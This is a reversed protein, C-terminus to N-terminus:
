WFRELGCRLAIGEDETEVCLAADGIIQLVGGGVAVGLDGVDDFVVAREVEAADTFVGNAAELQASGNLRNTM